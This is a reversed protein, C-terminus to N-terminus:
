NAGGTVVFGSWYYPHEYPRRGSEDEYDRLWIKADRLADATRADDRVLNGYFRGMLLSTADDEVKWLSVLLNRAGAQLFAHALGVHGEGGAERGLATGCASLTVLDADLTWERAIENATLLGDYVRRGELAADLQSPLGVQSLVLASRGPREDDIHAHTAFHLTGFGALEGATALRVLEQETADPGLLVTADPLVAAIEAVEDRTAPLRPLAPGARERKAAARGVREGLMEALHANTYPPDGVLLAPRDEDDTSQRETLWTAVTASPVYSVAFREGMYVGNDDVLAEVPIGLMAGSPVVLLRRAGRLGRAIPGIREAWVEAAERRLGALPSDPTRLAKLFPLMHETPGENTAPLEYRGLRAWLVGGTDRLVYVWADFEGAASPVDVWGILAASYPLAQQAVDLPVARDGAVPYSAAMARCFAGWEAEAGLLRTRASDAHGSAEGTTDQRAASLFAALERECDGLAHLLSDKRALERESMQRERSGALLDALTRALANEAASWAAEGEGLDLRVAALDSYPSRLFTARQLGPGARLRAVDYSRCAEELAAEAAGLDGSQRYAAGLEHLALVTHPHGGGLLRRRLVLARRYLWAAKTHDGRARELLGLNYLNTAVQPHVEGLLRRRLELSELFLTEAEDYQGTARLLVALNHISGAVDPHDDGLTGRRQELARRYLAEAEAYERQAYLSAALNNMGQAVAPHTEGLGATRVALAERFLSEAAAYDGQAYLLGALDNLSSAVSLHDSGLLERRMALAERYLPEAAAYDGRAKLVGALTNLGEAVAPHRPGHARRRIELSRRYLPEAEAYKGQAKLVAALNGLAATAQPDDEECTTEIIALAERLLEEAGFYDGQAHLLSALNSLTFAIEPHEDGLLVRKLRLAERYAEGAADHDGSAALLVALNNTTTAVSEDDPGPIARRIDLEARLAGLACDIDQARWCAGAVDALSDARALRALSEEPLDEAALPEAATVGAPLAVAVAILWVAAVSPRM